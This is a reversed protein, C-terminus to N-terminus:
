LQKCANLVSSHEIKSTIIHGKGKFRSIGKIALNNSETGGSTFIIEEPDANLSNAVIIRAKQLAAKSILGLDHLSSSNGYDDVMYKNMNELINPDLKTTAGNDLYIIKNM